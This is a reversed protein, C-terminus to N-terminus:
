AGGGIVVVDSETLEGKVATNVGDTGLLTVPVRVAADDRLVYVADGESTARPDPRYRLALSPVQLVDTLEAVVIDATATMGPRLLGETNVVRLDTNYTVVDEDPDPALDVNVVEATFVQEPWASVTFTATQGEHVSGVDAEDVGVEVELAELSSAVEFLATAATSSVVTQGPDVFRHIVVGDIPSRITTDALDAEADALSAAAQERSARASAVSAQALEVDLQASDVENQTAAGRDFLRQTRDRTRIADELELAAKNASARASALQATAQSVAHQFPAPDLQALIQGEEVRANEEVEVTILKGSQDSGVEVVHEPELQGVATVKTTLTAREVPLTDWGADESGGLTLWGILGLGLLGVGAAVAWPWRKRTPPELAALDEASPTSFDDADTLPHVAKAHM